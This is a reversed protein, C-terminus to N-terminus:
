VKPQKTPVLNVKKPKKGYARYRKSDAKDVEYSSVYGKTQLAQLLTKNEESIPFTPHKGELLPLFEQLGPENLYKGIETKEMAAIRDALVLKKVETNVEPHRLMKEAADADKAAAELAEQLEFEEPQERMLNEYASQGSLILETVLEPYNERLFHLNKITMRIIKRKILIRMRAKSLGTESFDSYYYGLSSLMQEYKDDTVETNVLIDKLLKQAGGNEYKKQIEIRNLSVEKQFGNIYSALIKDLGNGSEFYYTYLNATNHLINKPLLLPWLQKNDIAKLNTLETDLLSVYHQKLEESVERHNLVYAVTDERDAVHEWDEMAMQLFTTLHSEAYAKLPTERSRILTLSQEWQAEPNSIGYEAKLVTCINERNLRYMNKYYVDRGLKKKLADADLKEFRVDLRQLMDLAHENDGPIEDILEPTSNIYKTLENDRNCKQIDEEPSECLTIKVYNRRVEESIDAELLLSCVAPWRHNMEKALQKGYPRRCIYESIFDVPEYNWLMKLFAETQAKYVNKRELLTDLLDFNLCYDYAFDELQMQKVVEEPNGLTYSYDMEEGDKIKRLFAKDGPKMSNDYFYTMYDPYSEDIYGRRVLYQIMPFYPSRKIKEFTDPNGIEYYRCVGFVEKKNKETILQKLRLSPLESLRNEKKLIEMTLRSIRGKERSELNKRREAYEPISLLKDFDAKVDTDSWNTRGYYSDYIGRQVKYNNEKIAAIYAAYSEFSGAPKGNVRVEHNDQYYIADLEDIGRAQEEELKRRDEKLERIEQELKEKEKKFIEKKEEFVAFLYGRRIQLLAFDEPFINKYAILALLKDADLGTDKEYLRGHYILYENYINSLMRMDDIYLSIGKFFDDTPKPSIDTKDFLEKLMNYANSGDMVPIVPIIIDFFKTRDKSEFIDDKLLYLFRLTCHRNVLTNIERLREFIMEDDFRDIDEFVVVDAGCQEFLYLVENMYKDFYSDEKESGNFLEIETGSGKVAVKKIIRQNNQQKLFEVLANIGIYVCVACCALLVEGSKTVSLIDRIVESYVTDVMRCWADHFLIFALLLVMIAGTIIQKRLQKEDQKRMIRFHTQPINEPAIQHILQNIIKGEMTTEKPECGKESQFHAFSIHLFRIERHAAKYTELVSSKGAGYSGSLAINRIEADQLAFDLAQEYIGLNMENYPTLKKFKPNEAMM